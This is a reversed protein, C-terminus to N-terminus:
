MIVTTALKVICVRKHCAKAMVTGRSSFLNIIIIMIIIIIIIAIILVTQMNETERNQGLHFRWSM